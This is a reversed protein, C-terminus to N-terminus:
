RLVQSPREGLLREAEAAIRRVIEGAPEVSQILGAAAGAWVAEVDADAVDAAAELQARLEARQAVVEAERGHWADIFANRLVRGGIGDPFPLSLGLDYVRTWVTDDTGATVVRAKRWGGGAWEESAVFRTGLWAGEAGLLLAAALGRGDAIGGAAIVPIEGVADVVAPVFSLTGNAGTHGGGESGQAAIADAGAVAATRAQSVTQVQVLVKTGVAHAPAVYPTPDGFSYAVAAVREELAVQVLDELGPYSLIFGVGFPRDTRERTARIQNRLWGAQEPRGRSDSAGIMGFGGAESVAAALEATATGAMPASIIPYELRLLDCLRTHLM